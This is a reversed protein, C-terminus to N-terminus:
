WIAARMWFVVERGESVTKKTKSIRDFIFTTKNPPSDSRDQTVKCSFMLKCLRWCWTHLLVDLRHDFACRLRSRDGPSFLFMWVISNELSRPAKRCSGMQLREKEREKEREQEKETEKEKEKWKPDMQSVNPNWKPSMQSGNPILKPAM